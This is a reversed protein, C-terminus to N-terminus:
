QALSSLTRKMNEVITKKFGPEMDIAWCYEDFARKYEREAWYGDGREKHGRAEDLAEQEEKDLPSGITEDMGGPWLVGQIFDEVAKKVQGNLFYATGRWEFFQYDQGADGDCPNLELAANYLDIVEGYKGEKMLIHARDVYHEALKGKADSNGPDLRIAEKLDAIGKYEDVYGVYILYFSGRREHARSCTPDLRIAESFDAVAAKLYKDVIDDEAQQHVPLKAHPAMEDLNEYAEGRGLYALANQPDLQIADTFEKIAEDDKNRNSLAFGESLHEPASRSDLAEKIKGALVAADKPRDNPEGSVCNGLIDALKQPLGAQCLRTMWPSGTPAGISLDCTMMQYWIVGIAYVDDRPDAPDGRQQQPSAYLPTYTGCAMSAHYFPSAPGQSGQRLEQSAAIGGIGFDAIKFRYGEKESGQVLINAPKLDRHVVARSLRHAFGVIEAMEFIMKTMQVLTPRLTQCFYLNDKTLPQDRWQQILGTLEGGAVYEYELFSLDADLCTRRLEVIGPHKGERMVRNLVSVEHKLSNRASLDLCFKLAVPPLGDFNPDHAKWVEGFGGVGLQETLQLGLGPLPYQGVKLRPVRDPILQQLDAAKQLRLYTPISKGTPDDVRRSSQRIKNPLQQLVARIAEKTEEPQGAAVQNIIQNVRRTHQAPSAQIVPLLDNQKQQEQPFDPNWADWAGRLFDFAGVALDGAVGFGIANGILRVGVKVLGVAVAELFSPM